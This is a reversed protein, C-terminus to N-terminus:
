IIRMLIFNESITFNNKKLDEMEWHLYQSPDQSKSRDQIHIILSGHGVRKNKELPSFIHLSSNDQIINWDYPYTFQIGKNFYDVYNLFRKSENSEKLKVSDIIQQTEM